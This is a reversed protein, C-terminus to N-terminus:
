MQWKDIENVLNETEKSLEEINIKKVADENLFRAVSNFFREGEILSMKSRESSSLAVVSEAILYSQFGIETEQKKAWFTFGLKELKNYKSLEM